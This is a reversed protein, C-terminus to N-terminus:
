EKLGVKALLELALAEAQEKPMAKVKIPGLTINHLVDLHPFLNFQQFVFGVHTRLERFDFHSHKANEPAGVGPVTVGTITLSGTDFRELGNFCRLLTTKGCGSPGILCALEGERVHMTCGRLVPETAGLYRKVVDRAEIMTAGKPAAGAQTM